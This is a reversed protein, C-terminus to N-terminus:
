SDHYQYVRKANEDHLELQKNASELEETRRKVESDLNSNWKTLFIILIIAGATTIALLSFTEIRQTFLIDEIQSYIETFHTNCYLSCPEM